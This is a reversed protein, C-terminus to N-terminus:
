EEGYGECNLLSERTLNWTAAHGCLEEGPIVCEDGDEDVVKIDYTDCPIDNLKFSSGPEITVEGLQDAGWQSQGAPSVYLHHVAWDTKNYITLNSTKDGSPQAPASAAAPAPSSAAPAPAAANAAAPAADAGSKVEVTCGLATATLAMPALLLYVFRKM